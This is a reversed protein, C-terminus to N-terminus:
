MRALDDVSGVGGAPNRPRLMVPCFAFGTGSLGQRATATTNATLYVAHHLRSLRGVVM